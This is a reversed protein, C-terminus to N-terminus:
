VPGFARQLSVTCSVPCPTPPQRPRTGAASPEQRATVGRHQPVPVVQRLGAAWLARTSHCLALRCSVPVPDSGSLGRTHCTQHLPAPIHQSPHTGAPWCKQKSAQELLWKKNLISSAALPVSATNGHLMSSAGRGPLGCPKAKMKCLGLDIATEKKFREAREIPYPYASLKREPRLAM